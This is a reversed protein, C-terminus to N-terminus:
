IRLYFHKANKSFYIFAKSQELWNWLSNVKAIQQPRTDSSDNESTSFNIFAFYLPLRIRIVGLQM